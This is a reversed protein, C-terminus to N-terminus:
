RLTVQFILSPSIPGPPATIPVGVEVTHEGTTGCLVSPSFTAPSMSLRVGDIAVSFRSDSQQLSAAVSAIRGTDAASCDLRLGIKTTLSFSGKDKKHSTGFAQTQRAWSVHGFNLSGFGSGAAQVSAGTPLTVPQVRPSVVPPPTASAAVQRVAQAHAIVAAGLAVATAYSKLALHFM